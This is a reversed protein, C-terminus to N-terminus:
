QTKYGFYTGVTKPSQYKTLTLVNRKLTRKGRRRRARGWPPSPLSLSTRDFMTRPADAPCFGSERGGGGTPHVPRSLALSAGFVPLASSADLGESPPGCAFSACGRLDSGAQMCLGPPRFHTRLTQTHTRSCSYTFM